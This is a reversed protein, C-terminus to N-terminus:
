RIINYLVTLLTHIENGLVEGFVKDAVKFFTKLQNMGLHGRGSVLAVWNYKEPDEELIRRMIAYPPGDAGIFVWKRDENILRPKLTDLIYRLREVSNPNEMIPENLSLDTSNMNLVDGISFYKPMQMKTNFRTDKAEEIEAALGM